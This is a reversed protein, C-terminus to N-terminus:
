THQTTTIGSNTQNQETRRIEDSNTQTTPTIPQPQDNRPTKQTPLHDALRGLQGRLIPGNFASGQRQKFTQM